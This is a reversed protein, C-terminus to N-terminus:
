HHAVPPPPPPSVSPQCFSVFVRGYLTRNEPIRLKRRGMMGLAYQSVIVYNTEWTINRLKLLFEYPEASSLPRGSITLSIINGIVVNM